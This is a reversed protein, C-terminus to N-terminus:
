AVKVRQNTILRLGGDGAIALENVHFSGRCGEGEHSGLAVSPASCLVVNGCTGIWDTHRHGHMIITRSAYPAIALLVDPANVLALGIRDRLSISTMPYEVVQHHLLIVWAQDPTNALFSKLARLQSRNVVGIANTLSFHSRANSDLLILGCGDDRAPEVLPFIAEWIKSMERRGRVAGREALLRLRQVRDGERLYHSLSPGLAGSTRNVLHARDGQLADLALLVRLKRLSQGASWPLEPRGPNTRDTINVDHNGPVFSVRSRVEPFCRLLDVFEAWEARTGADTIDGTLLIHDLPTAAHMATVKRFANRVCRNGRPGHTGTEMRCGYREGVLHLDSLHAVRTVPWEVPAPNPAWNLVARHLTLERWLWYLSEVATSFGLIVAANGLAAKAVPWPHFHSADVVQLRFSFEVSLALAIGGGVLMLAALISGLRRRRDLEEATISRRPFREAIKRFSERLIVFTPFVLTYHLHWFNDLATRLLPRGMWLALGVLLILSIVTVTLGSGASAALHFKLRGYDVVVSPAIGILLAPVIILVLFGISAKLFNFDLLAALVVSQMGRGYPSTRNDENDGRRLNWIRSVTM